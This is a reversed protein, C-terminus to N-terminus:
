LVGNKYAWSILAAINKSQTKDLLRQRYGEITRSSKYIIKSMEESTHGESILKLIEIEADSFSISPLETTKKHQLSQILLSTIEQGFYRGLQMVNQLTKFLEEPTIDKLLYGNAGQEIMQRIYSIESYMTLMIIRIEPMTQKLLKLVDLGNANKLKIDLLLIEPTKENFKEELRDPNGLSWIVEFEKSNNVLECIGTRFLEHDDLIAVQTKPKM